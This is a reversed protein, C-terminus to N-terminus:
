LKGHKTNYLTWATLSATDGLAFIYPTPLFRWGNEAMEPGFNVSIKHPRDFSVMALARSHGQLDSNSNSVKRVGM